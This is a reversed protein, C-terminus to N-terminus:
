KEYVELYRAAVTEPHYKKLAQRDVEVLELNVESLSTEGAVVQDLYVRKSPSTLCSTLIEDPAGGKFALVPKRFFLAEVVTKGFAEQTSPIIVAQAKKYFWNLQPRTLFGLSTVNSLGNIESPLSGPGAFCFDIEPNDLILNILRDVGKYRSNLNGTPLFMFHNFSEEDSPAEVELNCMVSNEIHECNNLGSRLFVERLWGSIAVLRASSLFKQKEIKYSLLSRPYTFLDCRKCGTAYSNCSLSYHCGGTAWWMDRATFVTKFKGTYQKLAGSRSIWHVHLVDPKVRSIVRAHVNFGRSVNFLDLDHRNIIFNIKGAIKNVYLKLKDVWGIELYGPAQHYLKDFVIYSKYGETSAIVDHLARAGLAAGGSSDGSVVHLVTKSM